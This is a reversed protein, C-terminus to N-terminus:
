DGRGEARAKVKKVPHVKIPMGAAFFFYDQAFTLAGLSHLGALIQARHDTGHNLIHFHVQWVKIGEDFDMDLGDDTLQELYDRMLKEVANWKTRVMEFSKYRSTMYWGPVKEGRLGCFWREDVNLIHVCQNRISGISYDIKRKFDEPSLTLVCQEWIERNRKFHYEYLHQIEQAKM